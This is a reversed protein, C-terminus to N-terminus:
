NIILASSSMNMRSIQIDAFSSIKNNGVNGKLLLPYPLWEIVNDSYMNSNVCLYTDKNKNYDCVLFSHVGKCYGTFDIPNGNIINTHFWKYFSRGDGKFYKKNVGTLNFIKEDFNNKDMKLDNFFSFYEESPYEFPTNKNKFICANLITILSCTEEDKQKIFNM